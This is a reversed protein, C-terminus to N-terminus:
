ELNEKLKQNNSKEAYGGFKLSEHVQCLYYILPYFQAFTTSQSWIVGLEGIEEFIGESVM